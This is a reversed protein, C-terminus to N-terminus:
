LRLEDLATTLHGLVSDRQMRLTDEIEALSMDQIVVDIVIMYRSANLHLGDIIQSNQHKAWRVYEPTRQDPHHWMHKIEM